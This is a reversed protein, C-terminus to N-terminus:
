EGIHQCRFIANSQIFHVENWGETTIEDNDIKRSLKEDTTHSIATLDGCCLMDLVRSLSLFFIAFTFWAFLKVMKRAGYHWVCLRQKDEMVITAMAKAM